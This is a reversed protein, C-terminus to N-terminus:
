FKTSSPHPKSPHITQFKRGVAGNNLMSGHALPQLTRENPTVPPAPATPQSSCAKTAKEKTQMRNGERVIYTM